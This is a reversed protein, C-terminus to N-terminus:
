LAGPRISNQMPDVFIDSSSGVAGPTNNYPTYYSMGNFAAESLKLQAKLIANTAKAEELIAVQVDLAPKGVTFLGASARSDTMGKAAQASEASVGELLRKRRKADRKAENEEAIKNIREIRKAFVEQESWMKEWNWFDPRTQMLLFKEYWSFRTESGYLATHLKKVAKILWNTLTIAGNLGTMIKDRFLQGVTDALEAIVGKLTSWRGELTGALKSAGDAFRGGETTMNKFAQEIMKFTIQGKRSMEFMENQTKGTQKALEEMIPVGAWILQNLERMQAKGRSFVKGYIFAIEELNKGSVASVDGLQKIIKIQEGASFGFALLAKSARFVEEPTFPTKVSFERLQTMTRKALLANKILIGFQMGLTEFRATMKVAFMIANKALEAIKSAIQALSFGLATQLTKGLGKISSKAQNVGKKVGDASAGIKIDLRAM